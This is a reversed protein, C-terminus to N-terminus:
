RPDFPVQVETITRSPAPSYRWKEVAAVASEALIPNGGLVEVSKVDGNPTIIM